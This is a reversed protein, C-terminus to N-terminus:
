LLANGDPFRSEDCGYAISHIADRYETGRELQETEDEPTVAM